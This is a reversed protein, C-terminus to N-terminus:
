AYVCSEVNNLIELLCVRLEDEFAASARKAPYIRCPLNQIFKVERRRCFDFAQTQANVVFPWAQQAKKSYFNREVWSELRLSFHLGQSTNM